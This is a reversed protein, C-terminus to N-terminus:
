AHQPDKTTDLLAPLVADVANLCMGVTLDSVPGIHRNPISNDSGLPLSCGAKYPKLTESM